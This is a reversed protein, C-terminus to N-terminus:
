FEHEVSGDDPVDDDIGDDAPPSSEEAVEGMTHLVNGDVHKAESCKAAIHGPRGCRFCLRNGAGSGGSEEGNVNFQHGDDDRDQYRPQSNKVKVNRFLTYAATQKNPYSNNGKLFDQQMQDVTDGYRSRDTGLTFMMAAMRDRGQKAYEKQKDDNIANDGTVTEGNETAIVTTLLSDFIALFKGTGGFMGDAAKIISTFDDNFNSVTMKKGQRTTFVEKMMMVISYIPDTTATGKFTLSKIRALLELVDMDDDMDDFDEAEKLTAQVTPDCNNWVIQYVCRLSEKIEEVQKEWRECAKTYRVKGAETLTSVEAGDKDKVNTVYDNEDPKTPLILKGKAISKSCRSNYEDAAYTVISKHTETYQATGSARAGHNPQATFVGIKDSQGAFAKEKDSAYANANNKKKGKGHRGGQRGQSNNADPKTGGGSEASSEDGM